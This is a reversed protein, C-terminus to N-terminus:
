KGKLAAVEAKLQNIQEQQEQIAKTLIGVLFSTDIGQYVPKGEADVADKEGTVCDPVVAQLEHAIFGQGDSGDAKWTYTVPNLQAVVDLAGQMPQINEKLRYDSSTNYATASSTTTISGVATTNSQFKIAPAGSLGSTDRIVMGNTSASAYALSIKGTDIASTTGVLLNGSSDIRMRETLTGGTSTTSFSLDTAFAGAYNTYATLAVGYSSTGGAVGLRISQSTSSFDSQQIALGTSAAGSTIVVKGVSSPSTNGIGLNGSADLTMAQTFSVASGAAGTGALYWNVSGDTGNQYVQNAYGSTLRLWNTGDFYANAISRLRGTGSDGVISGGTGIQLAKGFAAQWASPTVGLGLNGSSDLTAGLTTGASGTYFTHGNASYTLLSYQSSSRNYSAIAPTSGTGSTPSVELGAAGGNSVVLKNQPSSTGIGLGTSTLRMQETSGIVWISNGSADIVYRKQAATADAIAFEGVGDVYNSGVYYSRGNTSTSSLVIRTGYSSSSTIGFQGGTTATSDSIALKTGDFTLASGSTLVKSGNLYAVGNATGGSVTINGSISATAAAINGSTSFGGATLTTGDFTFGSNDVLLGGTSVYPVRTITLATDTLNTVVAAAGYSLADGNTTAAGLGTLKYGGMPINATATATGNRLWTLNFSAAMDNRVTNNESSSVTQGPVLAPTPLTYVGASFSM